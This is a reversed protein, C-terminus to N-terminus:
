PLVPVAGMKEKGGSVQANKKRGKFALSSRNEGPAYPSEPLEAMM